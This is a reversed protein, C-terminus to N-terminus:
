RRLRDLHELGIALRQYQKFSMTKTVRKYFEEYAQAKFEDFGNAIDEEEMMQRVWDIKYKM